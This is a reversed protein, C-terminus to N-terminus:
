LAGQDCVHRIKFIADSIHSSHWMFGNLLPFQARNKLGFYVQPRFSGWHQEATNDLTDILSEADASSTGVGSRADERPVTDATAPPTAVSGHTALALVACLFWLTARM